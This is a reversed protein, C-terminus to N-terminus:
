LDEIQSRGPQRVELILAPFERGLRRLESPREEVGLEFTLLQRAGRETHRIKQIVKGRTKRKIPGAKGGGMQGM